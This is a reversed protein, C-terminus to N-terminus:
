FCMYVSAPFLACQNEQFRQFRPVKEKKDFDCVHYSVFVVCDYIDSASAGMTPSFFQHM